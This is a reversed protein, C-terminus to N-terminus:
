GSSTNEKSSICTSSTMDRQPYIKRTPIKDLKRANGNQPSSTIDKLIFSIDNQASTNKKDVDCM